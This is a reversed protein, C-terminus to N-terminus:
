LHAVRIGRQLAEGVAVGTAADWVRVTKDHSASALQKGDPSWSVSEVWDTHGRLAEGVADGTAAVAGDM